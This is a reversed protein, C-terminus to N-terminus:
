TRGKDDPAGGLIQSEVNICYITICRLTVTATHSTTRAVLHEGILDASAESGSSVGYPEGLFLHGFEGSNVSRVDTVDLVTPHHWRDIDDFCEAGRKVHCEALQEVVDFGDGATRTSRTSCDVSSVTVTIAPCSSCV